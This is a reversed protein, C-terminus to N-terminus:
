KPKENFSIVAWGRTDNWIKWPHFECITVTANDSFNFFALKAFDAANLRERYLMYALLVKLFVHHTVIVTNRESQRALLALCKRAREKLDTFNEEDSFRYDDDHYALDMQDIIKKVAPDDRHKGIIEKPNRREVFLDSYIIPVNLHKNIITSTERTREYTSSLICKIHYRTLARGLADAQERGEPSLGGEEGQRVHQANLLTEGHRVIYFRRPRMLYLTLVVLLFGFLPLLETSFPISM